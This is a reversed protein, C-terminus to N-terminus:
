KLLGEVVVTAKGKADFLAFSGKYDWNAWAIGHKALVTRFDRYWALRIPDPAPHHVGFEGCYLPLHTRKQVALPQALDREMVGANYFTNQSALLDKMERPLKEWDHPAIPQGPYHIPGDYRGIPTWPARYHTILMPSYYHFTLILHPDGEPVDLDGFTSASNWRNSGLVVTREPELKRLADYAARAVRNWDAPDTAVPENMLEYAVWDSPRRQLHASLDQWLGAFRGAEAPDTYLLPEKESIFHHTRLIHLDVVARLGADKSWDLAADLLDFAEKERGGKADWMQEEDIPIRLHDLGLGALRQVDARTFWARREAGRRDSQSLWHSINTGRQITFAM